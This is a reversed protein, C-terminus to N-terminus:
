GALHGPRRHSGDPAPSTRGGGAWPPCRRGVLDRCARRPLVQTVAQSDGPDEPQGPGARPGRGGPRMRIAPWTGRRPRLAMVFPLGAEALEARVRGPGRVRLGRFASRFAFGAARAGVVRDAGVAAQDPVGIAKGRRSTGPRPTCCRTCRISFGSM